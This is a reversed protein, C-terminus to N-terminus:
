VALYDGRRRELIQSVSPSKGPGFRYTTFKQGDFRSLGDRTAFWMFGRSDHLLWNVAGSGLGDSATYVRVPLREGRAVFSALGALLVFLIGRSPVSPLVNRPFKRERM